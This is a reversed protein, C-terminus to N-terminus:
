EGQKYPFGQPPNSDKFGCTCISWIFTSLSTPHRLGIDNYRWCWDQIFTSPSIKLFLAGYLNFVEIALLPDGQYFPHKFVQISTSRWKMSPLHECLLWIAQPYEHIFELDYSKEYITSLFYIHTYTFILSSPKRIYLDLAFFGLSPQYLLM